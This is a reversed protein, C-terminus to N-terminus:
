AVQRYQLVKRIIEPDMNRLNAERMSVVLAAIDSATRIEKETDNSYLNMEKSLMLGTAFADGAGTTYVQDYYKKISVGNIRREGSAELMSIIEKKDSIHFHEFVGNRYSYSGNEGDTIIIHDIAFKDLERHLISEIVDIKDLNDLSEKDEKVFKMLEEYTMTLMKSGYMMQQIHDADHGYGIDSSGALIYKRVDNRFKHIIAPNVQNFLVADFQSLNERYQENQVPSTLILNKNGNQAIVSQRPKNTTSAIDADINLKLIESEPIDTAIHIGGFAQNFAEQNFLSNTSGGGYSKGIYSGKYERRIDDIFFEIAGPIEYVELSKRHVKNNNYKVFLDKIEKELYTGKINYDVVLNPTSYIRTSM